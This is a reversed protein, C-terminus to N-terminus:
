RTEVETNELECEEVLFAIDEAISVLRNNWERNKSKIELSLQNLQRQTELFAQHLEATM